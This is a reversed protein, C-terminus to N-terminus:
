IVESMLLTVFVASILKEFQINKWNKENKRFKTLFKWKQISVWDRRSGASSNRSGPSDRDRFIGPFVSGSGPDPLGLEQPLLLLFFSLLVKNIATSYSSLSAWHNMFSAKKHVGCMFGQSIWEQKIFTLISLQPLAQSHSARFLSSFISKKPKYISQM